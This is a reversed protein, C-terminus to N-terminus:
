CFDVQEWPLFTIGLLRCLSKFFYFLMERYINHTYTLLCACSYKEEIHSPFCFFIRQCGESDHNVWSLFIDQLESELQGISLAAWLQLYHCKNGSTLPFLAPFCMLAQLRNFLFAKKGINSTTLHGYGLAWLVPLSHLWTLLNALNPKIHMHTEDASYLTFWLGESLLLLYISSLLPSLVVGKPTSYPHPSPSPHVFAVSLHLSAWPQLSILCVLTFSEM